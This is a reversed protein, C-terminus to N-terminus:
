KKMRVLKEYKRKYFYLRVGIFADASEIGKLQNELLEIKDKLFNATLCKKKDWRGFQSAVSQYIRRRKAILQSATDYIVEGKENKKGNLVLVEDIDRQMAEGLQPDLGKDSWVFIQGNKKYGIAQMQRKNWPNITLEKDGRAADCCLIHPKDENDKEGGNCVGLYNQYDLALEKNSSLVKYHEIHMSGHQERCLAETIEGKPM